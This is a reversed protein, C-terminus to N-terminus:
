HVVSQNRIAGIGCYKLASIMLGARSRESRKGHRSSLTGASCGRAISIETLIKLLKDAHRKYSNLASM